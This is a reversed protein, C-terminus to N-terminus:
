EKVEVGDVFIFEFIYNRKLIHLIIKCLKNIIIYKYFYFLENIAWKHKM